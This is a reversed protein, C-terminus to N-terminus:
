LESIAPTANANQASGIRPNPRPWYEASDCILHKTRCVVCTRQACGEGRDAELEFVTSGCNCKCLRTEHIEYGEAKYARLYDAIDTPDSGVWWKGSTDIVM